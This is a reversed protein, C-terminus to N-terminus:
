PRLLYEQKPYQMVNKPPPVKLMGPHEPKLKCTMPWHIAGLQKVCSRLKVCRRMPSVARDLTSPPAELDQFITHLVIDM